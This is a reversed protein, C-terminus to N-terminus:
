QYFCVPDMEFSLESESTIDTVPMNRSRSTVELKLNGGQSCNNELVDVNSNVINFEIDSDSRLTFDSAEKDQCNFTVTQTANKYNVKLFNMQSENISDEPLYSIDTESDGSQNNPYICTRVESDSFDCYVELSDAESGGNPDIFYNGSPLAVNNSRVKLDTCSRANSKADSEDNLEDIQQKLLKLTETPLLKEAAEDGQGKFNSALPFPGM